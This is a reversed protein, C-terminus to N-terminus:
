DMVLDGLPSTPVYKRVLPFFDDSSEQLRKLFARVNRIQVSQYKSVVGQHVGSHFLRRNQRWKDGYEQASFNWAGFGM